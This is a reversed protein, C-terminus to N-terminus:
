RWGGNSKDGFYGFEIGTSDMAVKNEGYVSLIKDYVEQNNKCNISLFEKNVLLNEDIKDPNIVMNTDLVYMFGSEIGFISSSVENVGVNVIATTYSVSIKNFFRPLRILNSNYISFNTFSIKTLFRPLKRIATNRIYLSLYDYKKLSRPISTVGMGVMEIKHLSDFHNLVTKPLLVSDYILVIGAASYLSVPLTEIQKESCNYLLVTCENVDPLTGQNTYFTDITVTDGLCDCMFIYPLNTQLERETQAISLQFAALLIL